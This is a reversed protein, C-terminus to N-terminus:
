NIKSKNGSNQDYYSAAAHSSPVQPMQSPPQALSAPPKSPSIARASAGTNNDALYV